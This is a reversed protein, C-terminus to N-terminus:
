KTPAPRSSAPSFSASPRFRIENPQQFYHGLYYWIMRRAEGRLLKFQKVRKRFVPRLAVFQDISAKLSATDDTFGLFVRQQVSTLGHNTNPRAYPANVMGSFDFDYPIAIFQGNREMVKINKGFSMSWDSNGIWYQFLAMMQFSHADFQSATFGKDQKVKRAGIRHRLQATDEILFVPM